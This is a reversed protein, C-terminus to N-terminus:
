DSINARNILSMLGFKSLGCSALRQANITFVISLIMLLFLFIAINIVPESRVTFLAFCNREFKGLEISTNMQVSEILKFSANYM